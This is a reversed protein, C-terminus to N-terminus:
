LCGEEELKQRPYALVTKLGEDQRLFWYAKWPDGSVFIDEIDKEVKALQEILTM